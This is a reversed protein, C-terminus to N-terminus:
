SFKITIENMGAGGVGWFFSVLFLFAIRSQAGRLAVGRGFLPAWPSINQSHGYTFQPLNDFTFCKLAIHPSKKMKYLCSPLM